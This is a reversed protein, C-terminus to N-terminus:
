FINKNNQFELDPFDGQSPIPRQWVKQALVNVKEQGKWRIRWWLRKEEVTNSLRKLIIGLQEDFGEAEEM